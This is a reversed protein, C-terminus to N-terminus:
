PFFFLLAWPPSTAAMRSSQPTRAVERRHVAHGLAARLVRRRGKDGGARPSSTATNLTGDRRPQPAVRMSGEARLARHRAGAVVSWCPAVSGTPPSAHKSIAMLLDAGIM